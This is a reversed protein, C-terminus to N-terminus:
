KCTEPYKAKQATKSSQNEADQRMPLIFHHLAEADRGSAVFPYIVVFQIESGLGAPAYTFEVNRFGNM